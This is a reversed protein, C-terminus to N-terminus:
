KSRLFLMRDFQLCFLELECRCFMSDLLSQLQKYKNCYCGDDVFLPSFDMSYLVGCILLCSVLLCAILSDLECKALAFWFFSWISSVLSSIGLWDDYDDGDDDCAANCLPLQQMIM